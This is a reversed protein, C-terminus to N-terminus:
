HLMNRSMVVVVVTKNFSVHQMLCDLACVCNHSVTIISMHTKMVFRHGVYFLDVRRFKWDLSNKKFLLFLMIFFNRPTYIRYVYM